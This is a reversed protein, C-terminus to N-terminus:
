VQAASRTAVLIWTPDTSRLRRRFTWIDLVRSVQGRLEQDSTFQVTIEAFSGDIAVELVQADVVAHVQVQELTQDELAKTFNAFVDDSVLPRLTTSDGIRFANVIISFATKAGVVFADPDFGPEAAIVAGMGNRGKVTVATVDSTSTDRLWGPRQKEEGTRQGLVSRLRLAIFAAILALLVIDAFPFNDSMSLCM